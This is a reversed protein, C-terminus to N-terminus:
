SQEKILTEVAQVITKVSSIDFDSKEPENANFPISIGFREEIAFVIEVLALSDMGLDDITSDITVDEPELMAQEAVIEIIKVSLDSM